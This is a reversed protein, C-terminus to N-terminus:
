VLCLKNPSENRTTSENIRRCKLYYLFVANRTNENEFLFINVELIKNNFTNFLM